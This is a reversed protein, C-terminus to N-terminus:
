SSFKGESLVICLNQECGFQNEALTILILTLPKDFQTDLRIKICHAVCVFLM